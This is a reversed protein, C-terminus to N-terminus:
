NFSYQMQIDGENASEPDGPDEETHEPTKVTSASSLSLPDPSVAVASRCVSKSSKRFM